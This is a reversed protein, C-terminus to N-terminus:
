SRGQVSCKAVPQFCKEQGVWLKRPLAAPYQINTLSNPCAKVCRSCLRSVTIQSDSWHLSSLQLWLLCKSWSCCMAGLLFSKITCVTHLVSQWECFQPKTFFIVALGGAYGFNRHHRGQSLRKPPPPSLSSSKSMKRKRQSGMRGKYWM